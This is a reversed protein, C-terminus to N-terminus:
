KLQAITHLQEGDDKWLSVARLIDLPIIYPQSDNILCFKHYKALKTNISMKVHVLFRTM